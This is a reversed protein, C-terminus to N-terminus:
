FLSYVLIRDDPKIEMLRIAEKIFSSYAVLSMINMATDYLRASLGGIEVKSNPYDTHM